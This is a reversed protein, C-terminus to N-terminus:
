RRRRYREAVVLVGGALLALGSVLLNPDIEPAEDHKALATGAFTVLILGCPVLSSVAKRLFNTVTHSRVEKDKPFFRCDSGALARSMILAM